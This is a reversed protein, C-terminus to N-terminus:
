EAAIRNRLIGLGDIEVEVVDGPRMFLPPSRRAGVGGPTGTVIVDGPALEIFTSIYAIQQPIPVIMQNIQANQVEQGNLRTRLRLQEPAPIEDATVLWPGFAGTGTFNKGPTFQSTHKQWDRVSAENYCAYGAVYDYAQSAPIRRGRKGIVLALEGEYDLESSELPKIIPQEHGVQTAPWRPFLTPKETVQRGTEIVHDHYNLGVCIIKEPDPITPLFRIGDLTHDPRSAQISSRIAALEGSAIFQKLTAHSTRKQLDVIGDDIVAGFSAVGNRAFSALKM